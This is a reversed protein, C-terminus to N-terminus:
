ELASEIRGQTKAFDEEAREQKKSYRSIATILASLFVLVLVVIIPTKLALWTQSNFIELESIRDYLFGFIVLGLFLFLLVVYLARL